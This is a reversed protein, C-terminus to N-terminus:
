LRDILLLLGSIYRDDFRYCVRARASTCDFIYRANRNNCRGGTIVCGVKSSLSTPSIMRRIVHLRLTSGNNVNKDLYYVRALIASRHFKLITQPLQRTAIQIPYEMTAAAHVKVIMCHYLMDSAVIATPILIRHVYWTHIYTYVYWSSFESGWAQTIM